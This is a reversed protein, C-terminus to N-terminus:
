VDAGGADPRKACLRAREVRHLQRVLHLSVELYGVSSFGEPPAAEIAALRRALAEALAMVGALPHLRALLAEIEGGVETSRLLDSLGAAMAAEEEAAAAREAAETTPSAAGSRGGSM